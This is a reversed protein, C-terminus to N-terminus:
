EPKCEREKDDEPCLWSLEELRRKPSPLELAALIEGAFKLLQTASEIDFVWGQEANWFGEESKSHIVYKM